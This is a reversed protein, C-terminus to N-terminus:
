NILFMGRRSIVFDDISIKSGDVTSTVVGTVAFSNCDPGLGYNSGSLGKGTYYSTDIPIDVYYVVGTGGTLTTVNGNTAKDKVPLDNLATTGAKFAITCPGDKVTFEVREYTKGNKVILYPDGSMAEANQISTASSEDPDGVEYDVYFYYSKKPATGVGPINANGNDVKNIGPNQPIAYPVPTSAQPPTNGPDPTSTITNVLLVAEPLKFMISKQGGINGESFGMNAYIMNGRRFMYYNEYINGWSGDIGSGRTVAATAYYGVNKYDNKAMQYIAKWANTSSQYLPVNYPYRTLAGENTRSEQANGGNGFHADRAEDKGSQTYATTLGLLPLLKKTLRENPDANLTGHGVLSHHDTEIYKSIMDVTKQHIIEDYTKDGNVITNAKHRILSDAFGVVLLDCKVNERGMSDTYRIDGTGSDYSVSGYGTYGNWIHWLEDLSVRTIRVEYDPLKELFYYFLSANYVLSDSGKGSLSYKKRETKHYGEDNEVIWEFKKGATEGVPCCKDGNNYVKTPVEIIGDFYKKINELGTSNSASYSTIKVNNHHHSDLATEVEKETPMFFSTTLYKYDSATYQGIDTDAVIQLVNIVSKGGSSKKCASMGSVSDVINGGSVLDLRWPVSGIYDRPIVDYVIHSTTNVAVAGGMYSSDYKEGANFIGDSNLDLYLNLTFTASSSGSVLVDFELKRDHGNGNIYLDDNSLSGGFYNYDNINNEGTPHFYNDVDYTPPASCLSLTLRNSKVTTCVDELITSFDNATDTHVSTGTYYAKMVSDGSCKSKLNSSVAVYGNFANLKDKMTATLDNGTATYVNSGGYAGSYKSYDVDAGFYIVDFSANLDGSINPDGALNDFEFMSMVKVSVGDIPPESSYSSSLFKKYMALGVSENVSYNGSYYDSNPLVILVRVDGGFGLSEHTHAANIITAFNTKFTNDNFLSSISGNFYTGAKNIKYNGSFSSDYGMGDISQGKNMIHIPTLTEPSWKDYKKGEGIQGESSIEDGWGILQGKETIGHGTAKTGFFLGNFVAPNEYLNLMLFLKYAVNESGNSRIGSNTFSRDFCLSSNAYFPYYDFSSTSGYCNRNIMFKAPNGNKGIVKNFIAMATKFELGSDTGFDLILLEADDILTKDANLEAVSHTTIVANCGSVSKKLDNAITGASTSSGIIVVNLNFTDDARVTDSYVDAFLDLGTFLSVVLSIILVFSLVKKVTRM